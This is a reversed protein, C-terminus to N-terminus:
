IGNKFDKLYHRKNIFKGILIKEYFKLDNSKGIVFLPYRKNGQKGGIFINEHYKDCYISIKSIEGIKYIEDM